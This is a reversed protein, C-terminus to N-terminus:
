KRLFASLRNQAEVSVRKKAIQHATYKILQNDIVKNSVARVLAKSVIIAEPANQLFKEIYDECFPAFAGEDICHHILGLTLAQSANFTEASMFLWKAARAGIAEIIYPSIVAPILGLKVESFCFHANMSAIAIDCAAILGVGGGFASGQVLAITPKPSQYLTNMVHALTLADQTNEAETYNVMRQMWELDAGASFYPGNAKLVILLINPNNICEDLAVQLTSLFTDDFANRKDIRNFTLTAVHHHQEILLNNM